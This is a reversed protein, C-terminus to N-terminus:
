YNASIEPYSTLYGKAGKPTTTLSSNILKNAVVERNSIGGEGGPQEWAALTGKCCLSKISFSMSFFM